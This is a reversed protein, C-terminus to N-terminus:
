LFRRIRNDLAAQDASFSALAAATMLGDVSCTGTAIRQAWRAHKPIKGESSLAQAEDRSFSPFIGGLGHSACRAVLDEPTEPPALELSDALSQEAFGITWLCDVGTGQSTPVLVVVPDDGTRDRLTVGSLLAEQAAAIPMTHVDVGALSVVQEGSRMSAAIQLTPVIRSATRTRVERQSALTAKEGVNIGDGLHNDAVYANLRGLFVNVYSPAALAAAILNQRASFGLTFNVPIGETRLRRTALLGAPTLPVKVIFQEPCVAYLRRGYAVSGDVDDALATHLEVSVRAGFRSALRLAHHANLLFALEIVQETVPLKKVATSAEHILTDYLGKQVEKNLLTNNTTLAAFSSCWLTSAADLDGTDLWPRTGTGALSRWWSQDPAPVRDAGFPVGHRALDHMQRSLSGASLVSSALM